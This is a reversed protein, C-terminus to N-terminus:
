GIGSSNVYFGGEKVGAASGTSVWKYRWRGAEEAEFTVYRIGTGGNQISPTSQDGSPDQVTLNVTTPDTLVREVYFEAKLTVTDGYPFSENRAM